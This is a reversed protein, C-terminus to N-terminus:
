VGKSCDQLPYLSRTQEDFDAIQKTLEPTVPTDKTLLVVFTDWRDISAQSIKNLSICLQHSFNTNQPVVLLTRTAFFVSCLVVLISLATLVVRRKHIM